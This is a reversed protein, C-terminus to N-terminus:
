TKDGFIVNLPVVKIGYKEVLEDPICASSDTVIAVEQAM